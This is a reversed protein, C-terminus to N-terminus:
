IKCDHSRLYSIFARLAGNGVMVTRGKDRDTWRGGGYVSLTRPIAPCLFRRIVTRLRAGLRGKIDSERDAKHAMKMVKISLICSTKCSQLKQTVRSAEFGARKGRGGTKM